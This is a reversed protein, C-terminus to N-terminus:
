KVETFQLQYEGKTIIFAAKDQKDLKMSMAAMTAVVLEDFFEDNSLDNLIAFERWINKEMKSKRIILHELNPMIVIKIIGDTKTPRSAM